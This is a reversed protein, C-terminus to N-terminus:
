PKRREFRIHWTQFLGLEKAERVGKAVVLWAEYPMHKRILNCRICAPVVNSQLHGRSNDIRDLTMRISNEGCYRCGDKIASLVFEHTLDNELQNEKDRRKSDHVIAMHPRESRMRAEKDHRYKINKARKEPTSNRIKHQCVFCINRVYIKDGNKKKCM